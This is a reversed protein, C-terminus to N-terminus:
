KQPRKWRLFTGRQADMYSRRAAESKGVKPPFATVGTWGDKGQEFIALGFDGAPNTLARIYRRRLMWTDGTQAWVQGSALLAVGSVASLLAVARAKAFMM